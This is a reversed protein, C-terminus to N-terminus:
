RCNLRMVNDCYIDSCDKGNLWRDPAIVIKEPNRNLWAAWWSFSSNAIINHKCHSMLMMDLYGTSEDNCDVIAYQEGQLHKKAWPIDNTFVYYFVDPVREQIRKMAREYYEDTCINGYLNQVAGTLYDGRRIHISVSETTQIQELFRRNNDDIECRFTFAELLERKIGSFYKETQWCGEFYAAEQQFVAEDYNFQHEMYSRTKRGTIKRRIRSWIDMYADTLAVLEERTCKEYTIGFAQRLHKERVGIGQYETVDDIKAPKGQALLQRYLAYQFMQNGLGGSMKIIFLHATERKLNRKQKYPIVLSENVKMTLNYLFASRLFIDMKRKENPNAVRCQYVQDFHDRQSLIMERLDRCYKKKNKKNDRIVDQRLLEGQTVSKAATRAFQTYLLLMRKYMFYDHIDALEDEGITRLFESRELYAPIQDTLTRANIGVSMISGERELVYNYFAEDLYVCRKVRSFLKATYFIDEYWRGVPFRLKRGEILERKYLKNWAANQIQYSEDEEIYAALAERGDFVVVRNRSDDVIRDPYICRYRCVALDAGSVQIAELMREYMQPEIWDDGDVYAIYFGTAVDTGANRADSLGGNKKHVVRIRNDKKALADCMKGSQDTAGDDVLIIELNGYTQHCISKVCRELYAEINYVAVVVSITASDDKIPKATYPEIIKM